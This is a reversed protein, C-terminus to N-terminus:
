LYGYGPHIFDIRYKNALELIAEQDLYDDILHCSVNSDLHHTDGPEYVLHVEFDLAQAASHIRKAIEGRNTILLRPM